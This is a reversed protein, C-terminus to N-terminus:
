WQSDLWSRNRSRAPSRRVAVIKGTRNGGRRDKRITAHSATATVRGRVVQAIRDISADRPACVQWMRLFGAMCVFGALVERCRTARRDARTSATSVEESASAANAGGAPPARTKGGPDLM